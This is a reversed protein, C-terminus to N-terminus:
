GEEGRGVGGSGMGVLFANRLANQHTDLESELTAKLHLMQETKSLCDFMVTTVNKM